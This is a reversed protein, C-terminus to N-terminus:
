ASMGMERQEQLWRREFDAFTVRPFQRWHEVLEESAYCYARAANGMFLSLSDIGAARGKANLLAGSTAEEARKYAAYLVENYEARCVRWDAFAERILRSM